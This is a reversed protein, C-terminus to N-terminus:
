AERSIEFVGAVEHVHGDGVRDAGSEGGGPKGDGIATMLRARTRNRWLREDDRGAPLRGEEAIQRDFGQAQGVPRDLRKVFQPQSM